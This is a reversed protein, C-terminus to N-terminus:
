KNWSYILALGVGCVLKSLKALYDGEEDQGCLVTVM